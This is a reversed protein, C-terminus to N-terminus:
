QVVRVAGVVINFECHLSSLTTFRRGTRKYKYSVRHSHTKSPNSYAVWTFQQRVEPECLWGELVCVTSEVRTFPTLERYPHTCGSVSKHSQRCQLPRAAGPLYLRTQRGAHMQMVKLWMLLISDPCLILHRSRKLIVLM